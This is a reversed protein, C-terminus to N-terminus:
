EILMVVESVKKDTFKIRLRWPCYSDKECNKPDYFWYSEDPASVPKGLLETIEQKTKGSLSNKEVLISNDKAFAVTKNNIQMCPKPQAQSKQAHIKISILLVFASLYSIRSRM